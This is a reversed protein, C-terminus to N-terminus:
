AFYTKSKFPQMSMVSIPFEPACVYNNNECYWAKMYIQFNWKECFICPFIIISHLVPKKLNIVRSRNTAEDLKIATWFILLKSFFIIVEVIQRFVNFSNLFVILFSNYLFLNYLYLKIVKEAKWEFISSFLVIFQTM